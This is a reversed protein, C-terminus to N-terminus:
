KGQRQKVWAQIATMITYIALFGSAVAEQNEPSVSIGILALLSVGAKIYKMIAEQHMDDETSFLKQLAV